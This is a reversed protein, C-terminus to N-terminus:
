LPHHVRAWRQSVDGRVVAHFGGPVVATGMYIHVIFGGITLLASSVHILIAGYRVWRLQWPIRETFWLAVGSVLLVVGGLFMLWFLYKQGANFRGVPPLKDGEHRVYHLISRNWARDLETIRMDRSWVRFMWAVALAFIVGSWPHWARATPGGGLVDAIWYLRPSYFALGTLLAYVYALAAIWHMVREDVTYRLVRGGPLIRQREM